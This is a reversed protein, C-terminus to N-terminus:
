SRSKRRAWDAKAARSLAARHEDSRPPAKRGKLTNSIATRTKESLRRGKMRASQAARQAETRKKGTLGASIKARQEPTRSGGSLAKSIASCHAESRPPLKRGTNKAVAAARAALPFPKGIKAASMKRRTEPTPNPCGGGGDTANTLRMGLIRAAKIFRIEEADRDRAAVESLVVLNPKQEGLSQIWCGLHSRKKKSVSLHDQFRRKINDTQGIYRVTRTGPECLAYIIVTERKM